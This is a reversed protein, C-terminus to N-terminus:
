QNHHTYCYDQYMDILWEADVERTEVEIHSTNAINDYYTITYVDDYEVKITCCGTTSQLSYHSNNYDNIYVIISVLMTTLIIFIM